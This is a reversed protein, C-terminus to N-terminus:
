DAEEDAFLNVTIDKQVTKKEKAGIIISGIIYYILLAAVFLTGILHPVIFVMLLGQILLPAIFRTTLINKKMTVYYAYVVSLCSVGIGFGWVDILSTLISIVGLILFEKLIKTKEYIGESLKKRIMKNLMFVAIIIMVAIIQRIRYIWLLEVM